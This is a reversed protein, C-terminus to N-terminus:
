QVAKLPGDVPRSKRLAYALEGAGVKGTRLTTIQLGQRRLRCIAARLTHPQCGLIEAISAQEGDPKSMLARLRDRSREASVVKDPADKIIAPQTENITLNKIAGKTKPSKKASAM